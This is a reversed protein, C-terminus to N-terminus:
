QLHVRRLQRIFGKYQEIWVNVHEFESAPIQDPEPGCVILKTKARTISVNLREPQFFFEGIASLFVPDAAAMSLIILEREQGQMREVTDAVIDQARKQGFREELLTRIVKGQARFPSVLGIEALPLGAQHAADCLDAILHAEQENRTRASTDTTPVFVGSAKPDFVQAFRNPVISQLSLQRQGNDGVAQLQNDYYTRSPWETLWRNMRYTENLMVADCKKQILRAFVSFSDKELVSKSLMVPPLQKHDGVFIFKKAMRMAMVALPVTIQSAEDFIVTDFRYDQLRKSCTAFPTAGVVYGGLEPCDLWRGMEEVATVGSILGKRQTYRGIKALPVNEQHIRNLANNIAMHTHSTLLVREGREVLLKAILALVKTKGTGAPGQICAAHLAGYALGVAKTQQTNFERSQAVQQAYQCDAEDFEPDIDGQLLPLVVENGISSKSLEEISKEYFSLLSMSDPDAFCPSGQKYGALGVEDRCRLLWRNADEEELVVQRTLLSSFDLPNGLHLALLDGERFRSDNDGLHAIFARKDDTRELRALAQTWGKSLKQALPQQWIEYIKEENAEQEDNVFQRLECLLGTYRSM